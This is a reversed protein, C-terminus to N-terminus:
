RKWPDPLPRWATDELDDDSNDWWYVWGKYEEDYESVICDIWMLGNKNCVLVDVDEVPLGKDSPTWGKKEELEDFWKRLKENERRLEQIQKDLETM